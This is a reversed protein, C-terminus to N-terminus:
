VGSEFGEAECMMENKVDFPIWFTDELKPWFNPHLLSGNFWLLELQLEDLFVFASCSLGSWSNKNIKKIKPLLGDSESQRVREWGNGIEFEERPWFNKSNLFFFNPDHFDLRSNLIGMGKNQVKFKQQM